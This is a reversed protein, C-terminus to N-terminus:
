SKTLSKILGTTIPPNFGYDHIFKARWFRDLQCINFFDNSILCIKQINDYNM